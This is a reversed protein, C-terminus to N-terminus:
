SGSRFFTIKLLRPPVQWAGKDIRRQDINMMLEDVGMATAKVQASTVLVIISTTIPTM